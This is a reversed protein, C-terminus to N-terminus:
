ESSPARLRLVRKWSVATCQLSPAHFKSQAPYNSTWHPSSVSPNESSNRSFPPSSIPTTTVRSTTVNFNFPPKWAPSIEPLRPTLPHHQLPLKARLSNSTPPHVRLKRFTNISNDPPPRGLRPHYQSPHYKRLEFFFRNRASINSRPPVRNCHPPSPTSPPRAM